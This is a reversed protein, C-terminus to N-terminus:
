KKAANEAGEGKKFWQTPHWIKWSAFKKWLSKKNAKEAEARAKRAAEAQKIEEKNLYANKKFVRKIREGLKFSWEKDLAKNATDLRQGLEEIKANAAKLKHNKVLGFGIGAATAIGLLTYGLMNSSAKKKTELEEDYIMPPMAIEEQPVTQGQPPLAAVYDQMGVNEVPM